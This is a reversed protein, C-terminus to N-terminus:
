FTSIHCIQMVKCRTKYYLLKGECVVGADASLLCDHALIPRSPCELLQSASSPCAVDDLYIPGIGAGFIAYSYAVSFLHLLHLCPRM